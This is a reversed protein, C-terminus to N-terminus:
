RGVQQNQDSRMKYVRREKIKALRTVVSVPLMRVLGKRVRYPLPSVDSLRIGGPVETKLVDTNLRDIAAESAYLFVNFRYWPEIELNNSVLPRIFDFVRYGREAFISRWYEYPQENIHHDGGQGPPAASFLVLDGHRTLSEVFSKAAREPLHEAVELSQVLDFKRQFHFPNSLDASIFSAEDILLRKRDVYDGDVGLVDKIGSETWVSLWAGQGCGIDLVSNVDLRKQVIPLLGRASAISGSNVYDFFTADYTSM